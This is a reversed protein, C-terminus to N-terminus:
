KGGRAHKKTYITGFAWSWTAALSLLIGFRFEPILFDSVHELFIVCVGAFGLLLGLVAGLPMRTGKSFLAIVM